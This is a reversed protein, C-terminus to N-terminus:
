LKPETTPRETMTGKYAISERSNMDMRINVEANDFFQITCITNEKVSENIFEFQYVFSKEEKNFGGSLNVEQNKANFGLENVGAMQPTKSIGLYPLYCSFKNDKFSIFFGYDSNQPAASLPCIKYISVYIDKNKINNTVFQSVAAAKAAKREKRSQSFATNGMALLICICILIKFVYTKNIM